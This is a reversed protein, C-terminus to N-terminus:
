VIFKMAKSKIIKDSKSELGLLRVSLKTILSKKTSQKIYRFINNITRFFNFDEKNSDIGIFNCGLEQQIGKQRKIETVTDM